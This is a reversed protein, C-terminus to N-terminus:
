MYHPVYYIEGGRLAAQSVLRCMSHVIVATACSDIGGSLPLFYGQTRSRRLYDWLWCAPGLRVLSRSYHLILLPLFSVWAIEEEPTHYRVEEKLIATNGVLEVLDGGVESEKVVDFKGKSLAMGVEIREYREAAAAQFSRSSRARHARVDEIDITATVVEVDSLSFQSGQAVIRGNLAIM